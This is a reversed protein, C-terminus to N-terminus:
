REPNPEPNPEPNGTLGLCEGVQSININSSNITGNNNFSAINLCQPVNCIGGTINVNKYISNACQNVLCYKNIGFVSSQGPFLTSLSSQVTDYVSPSLHCACLNIDTSNGSNILDNLTSYKTCYRTLGNSITSNPGKRQI